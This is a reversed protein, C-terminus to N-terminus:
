ARLHSECWAADLEAEYADILDDHIQSEPEWTSVDPPYGKWLILYYTVEVRKKGKGVTEVKSDLIREIDFKESAEWQWGNLVGDGDCGSDGDELDNAEVGPDSSWRDSSHGSDEEAHQKEQYFLKPVHVRRGSLTIVRVRFELLEHLIAPTEAFEEIGMIPEELLTSWFCTEPPRKGATSQEKVKAELLPCVGRYKLERGHVWDKLVPLTSEAHYQAPNKPM